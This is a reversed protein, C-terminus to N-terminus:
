EKLAEAWESRTKMTGRFKAEVYANIYKGFDLNNERMYMRLTIREAKKASPGSKKRTNRQTEGDM